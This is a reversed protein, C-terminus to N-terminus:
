KPADPKAARPKPSKRSALRLTQLHDRRTIVKRALTTWENLWNYLALSAARRAEATIGRAALLDIAAKAQAPTLPLLPPTDAAKAGKKAGAGPKEKALAELADARDLFTTVVRVSEAGRFHGETRM